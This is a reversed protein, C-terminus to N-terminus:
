DVKEDIYDFMVEIISVGEEQICHELTAKFDKKDEVYHGKAGFSEALKIFDPNPLDLSYNDFGYQKQKVKIMGYASNNLIVITLNINMRVATELDGLNMVFGGDGTVVVVNKNPHLMKAMTGTPVGAGMTAFTNDLMLTNPHSVRYNRAFWIKYWGNDLAIIDEKGLVEQTEKVLRRPGMIEQVDEKGIASYLNSFETKAIEYIEDFNWHSSNIEKQCLEYFLNGIDGVIDLYPAYVLDQKSEYFNIHITKTNGSNVFHTPKEVTDNGISLILDAKEVCKHVFDGDSLAATGVYQSMTEDLVGKGMQSEFFPINYKEVFERLYTTIRKRNAGAGILIMPRKASELEQVLLDVAKYEVVPRRVKHVELPTYSDEVEEQAIDEPLEIHVCGPRESVAIKFANRITTNVRAGNQIQTAWKTIPKMMEVVDIVQFDGQKSKKIPKQGTLVITPYGNLQAYGVGTMMNTAGPGLTAIAVGPKGTFRGYTAAMFVASQENRTLIIKISSDKLSNLVDLNEEGPVGFIYEVGENELCKVFLDSAKM